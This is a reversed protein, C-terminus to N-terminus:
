VQKFSEKRIIQPATAKFIAHVVDGLKLDLDYTSELTIKSRLYSKHMTLYIEVFGLNGTTPKVIRSVSTKICNRASTKVAEKSILIDEPKILVGVLSGLHFEGTIEVKLGNTAFISTGNKSEVVFGEIYNYDVGFVNSGGERTISNVIIEGSLFKSLTDNKVISGQRIISVNDALAYVDEKFHTVYLGLVKEDVLIKRIDMRLKTKTREDLHALPEDMLMIKPRLVLMRTLSVKQMEGGSLDNVNRDLLHHLDFSRTLYEIHSSMIKRRSKDLGFVINKYVNIHPFLCPKQFCYGINRSEIPKNTIDEGDVFVAGTDPKILGTIINLLTSKGSGTAGLLVQITEGCIKMNIPGLKFGAFSKTIDSLVLIM